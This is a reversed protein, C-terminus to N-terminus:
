QIQGTRMAIAVLHPLSKAGTVKKMHYIHNLVTKDEVFLRSSIQKVRLGQALLEVVQCQRKTLHTM